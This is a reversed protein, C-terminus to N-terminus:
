ENPSAQYQRLDALLQRLVAHSDEIEQKTPLEGDLVISAIKKASANFDVNMVPVFRSDQLAHEIEKEASGMRNLIEAKDSELGGHRGGLRQLWTTFNPPVIFLVTLHEMGFELFNNAGQYDIATLAVTGSQAIREYEKILSGNVRGHVDNVEIYEGDQIKQRAQEISLFYYEVGEREMIGNNERPLRTTSTVVKTFRNDNMMANIITDKGAGTIGTFIVTRIDKLRDIVDKPTQYTDVLNRTTDDMQSMTASCASVELNGKYIHPM